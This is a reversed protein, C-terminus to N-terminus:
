LVNGCVLQALGEPHGLALRRFRRWGEFGAGLIPHQLTYNWGDRWAELRGQASRDMEYTEITSMRGFWEEPLAQITFYAGILLLPVALYKRRSYLILTLTMAAMAIM